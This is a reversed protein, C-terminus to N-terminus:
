HWINVLFETYPDDAVEDFMHRLSQENMKLRKAAESLARKANEDDDEVSDLLNSVEMAGRLGFKYLEKTSDEAYVWLLAQSMTDIIYNFELNTRITLDVPNSWALQGITFVGADELREVQAKGVCQLKELESSQQNASEGLNLRQDVFRRGYKFLTNSPFTGLFFAMPIAMGTAALKGFCYGLPLAILFRYVATYMDHPTFDRARLRSLQDNVVWVYAGLFASVGVWLLGGGPIPQTLARRIFIAVAWLGMGALSALLVIPILYYKRSYLAYFRRKFNVKLQVADLETLDEAPFLQGYYLRLAEDDFYDFLLDRRARWARYLFVLVPLWVTLWAIIILAISASEWQLGYMVGGAPHM